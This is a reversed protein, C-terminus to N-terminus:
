GCFYLYLIKCRQILSEMIKLPSSYLTLLNYPVMLVCMLDTYGNNKFRVGKPQGVMTLSIYIECPFLHM